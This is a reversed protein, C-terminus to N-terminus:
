GRSPFGATSCEDVVRSGRGTNGDAVLVLRREGASEPADPGQQDHRANTTMDSM